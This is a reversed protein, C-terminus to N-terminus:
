VKNFSYPMVSTTTQPNANSKQTPLVAKSALFSPKLVDITLYAVFDTLL